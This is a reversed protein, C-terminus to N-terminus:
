VCVRRTVDFLVSGPCSLGHYGPFRRASGKQCWINPMMKPQMWRTRCACVVFRSVCCFFTFRRCFCCYTAVQPSPARNHCDPAQQLIHQKDNSRREYHMAAAVTEGYLGRRQVALDIGGTHPTQQLCRGQSFCRHDCSHCCICHPHCVDPLFDCVQRSTPHCPIERLERHLQM